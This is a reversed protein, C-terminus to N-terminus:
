ADCLVPGTWYPNLRNAHMFNPLMAEYLQQSQVAGGKTIFNIVYLGLWHMQLKSPHKTFKSDYLLM